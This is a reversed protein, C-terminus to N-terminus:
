LLALILLVTCTGCSAEFAQMYPGALRPHAPMGSAAESEYCWRISLANLRRLDFSVPILSNANLLRCVATCLLNPRCVILLM